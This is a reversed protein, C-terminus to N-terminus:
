FTASDTPYVKFSKKEECVRLEAKAHKIGTLHAVELESGSITSRLPNSGRDSCSIRQCALIRKTFGVIILRLIRNLAMELRESANEISEHTALGSLCM